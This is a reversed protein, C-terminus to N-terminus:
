DFSIVVNKSKNFQYMLIIGLHKAEKTFVMTEQSTEPKTISVDVLSTIKQAHFCRCCDMAQPAWDTWNRNRVGVSTEREARHPRSPSWFSGLQDSCIQSSSSRIMKEMLLQVVRTMIQVKIISHSQDSRSQHLIGPLQCVTGPVRLTEM